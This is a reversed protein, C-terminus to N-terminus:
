EQDQMIERIMEQFISDIPKDSPKKFRFYVDKIGANAYQECISVVKKSNKIISIDKYYAIALSRMLHRTPPLFMKANLTPKGTPVSPNLKKAYAYAMCFIFVEWYTHEFFPSWQSNILDNYADKNNDGYNVDPFIIEQEQM